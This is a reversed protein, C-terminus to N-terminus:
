YLWLIKFTVRIGFKCNNSSENFCGKKVVLYQLIEIVSEESYDNLLLAIKEIFQGRSGTQIDFKKSIEILEDQYRSM